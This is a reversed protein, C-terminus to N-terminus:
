NKEFIYKIEEWCDTPFIWIVELPKSGINRIGHPHNKPIYVVSDKRIKEDKGDKKLLMAEGSRILYIEQPFHSHLEIEEGVPIQVLGCSIGHSKIQSSDVLYKWRFKGVDERRQWKCDDINLCIMEEM